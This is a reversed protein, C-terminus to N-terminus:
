ITSLAKLLLKRSKSGRQMSNTLDTMRIWKKLLDWLAENTPIHFHKQWNHLVHWWCLLIFSRYQESCTNIQAWDFDSMIRRPIILPSRLHNLCLFYSITAQSGSSSLMWSVPIGHKWRDRVLLTTLNLNHYMTTNHMADICMLVEGYKAFMKHQRNTQIMLLFTDAPVNSGPLSPNTKLKFGLLHGKHQLTDVWKLTSQGDDPHLRVNEAEIDKEIWQIDQLTIFETHDAVSSGNLDQEFLDDQDCV